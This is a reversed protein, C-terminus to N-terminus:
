WINRHTLGLPELLPRYISVVGRSAVSLAFCVQRDLELPDIPEPRQTANPAARPPATKTVNVMPNISRGVGVGGTDGAAARLRQLASRPTGLVSGRYEPCSQTM